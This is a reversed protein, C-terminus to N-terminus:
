LSILIQLILTKFCVSKTLNGGLLTHFFEALWVKKKIYMHMKAKSQIKRFILCQKPLFFHCLNLKDIEGSSEGVKEGTKKGVNEGVKEGVKEGM